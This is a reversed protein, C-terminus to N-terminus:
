APQTIADMRKKEEIADYYKVWYVRERRPM